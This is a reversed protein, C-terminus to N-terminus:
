SIYICIAMCRPDDRTKASIVKTTVLDKIANFTASGIRPVNILDDVNGFSGNADRYDVIAQASKKGIPPLKKLQEFTASNINILAPPAAPPTRRWFWTAMGVPLM